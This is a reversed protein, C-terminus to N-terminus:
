SARAIWSKHNSLFTRQVPAQHNPPPHQLDPPIDRTYDILPQYNDLPIGTTYARMIARATPDRDETLKVSFWSALTQWDDRVYVPKASFSVTRGTGWTGCLRRGHFADVMEARALVSLRSLRVPRACYRAVENAANKHDKVMRIDLVYSDSTAKLWEASLKRLPLYKGTVICHLHPHWRDDTESLKIQFFWIGGTCRDSFWKMKRFRRFAAYLQDIQDVVPLASHKITLTLFKPYQQQPIWNAVAAAARVERAHSCPPCWRLGCTDSSVRVEGTDKHRVFWADTRCARLRSLIKPVNMQGSGAYASEAADWEDPDQKRLTARFSEYSPDGATTQRDQVLSPSM